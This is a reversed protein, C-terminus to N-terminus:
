VGHFVDWEFVVSAGAGTAALSSVATAINNLQGTNGLHQLTSFWSGPPIYGGFFYSQWRPALLGIPM